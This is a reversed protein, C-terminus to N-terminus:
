CHRYQKIVGEDSSSDQIVLVASGHPFGAHHQEQGWKTCFCQVGLRRACRRRCASHQQTCHPHSGEGHTGAAPGVRLLSQSSALCGTVQEPHVGTLQAYPLTAAARHGPESERAAPSYSAVNLAAVSRGSHAAGCYTCSERVNFM